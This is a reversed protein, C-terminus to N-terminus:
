SEGFLHISGLLHTLYVPLGSAKGAVEDITSFFIYLDRAAGKEQTSKKNRICIECTPM